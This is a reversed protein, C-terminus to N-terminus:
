KWIRVISAVGLFVFDACSEGNSAALSNEVHWDITEEATPGPCQVAVYSFQVKGIVFRSHPIRALSESISCAIGHQFVLFHDILNSTVLGVPM